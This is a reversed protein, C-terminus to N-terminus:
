GVKIYKYIVSTAIYEILNIRFHDLYQEEFVYSIINEISSIGVEHSLSDYVMKGDLISVMKGSGNM